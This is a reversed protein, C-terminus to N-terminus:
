WEGVCIGFELDEVSRESRLDLQLGQSKPTLWDGVCM